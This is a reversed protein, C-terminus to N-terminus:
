STHTATASFSSPPELPPFCHLWLCLARLGLNTKPVAHPDASVTHLTLHSLRPFLAYFTPHFTIKSSRLHWTSSPNRFSKQTFSHYSLLVITCLHVQCLPYTSPPTTPISVLCSSENSPWGLPEPQLSNLLGRIHYRPHSPLLAMTISALTTVPCVWCSLALPVSSSSPPNVRPSHQPWSHSYFDLPPHKTLPWYYIM